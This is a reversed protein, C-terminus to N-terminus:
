STAPEKAPLDALAARPLHTVIVFRNSEILAKTNQYSVVDPQALKGSNALWFFSNNTAAFKRAQYPAQADAKTNVILRSHLAGTSYRVGAKVSQAAVQPPVGAVLLGLCTSLVTVFLSTNTIRHM